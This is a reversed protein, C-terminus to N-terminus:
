SGADIGAAIAHLRVDDEQSGRPRTPFRKEGVMKGARDIMTVQGGVAVVSPHARLYAVQKEFRDSAAIDDADMRAILDGRSAQLARNSAAAVGHHGVSPVVKIREDMAAFFKLIEVSSILRGM